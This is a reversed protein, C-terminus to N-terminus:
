WTVLLLGFEHLRRRGLCGLSRRLSCFHVWSDSTMELVASSMRRLWVWAPVEPGSFVCCSFSLQASPLGNCFYCVSSNAAFLGCIKNLLEECHMSNRPGFVHRASILPVSPYFFACEFCAGVVAVIASGIFSYLVSSDVSASATDRHLSSPLSM